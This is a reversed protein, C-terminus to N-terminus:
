DPLSYIVIRKAHRFKWQKNQGIDFYKGFHSLDSLLYERNIIISESPTGISLVSGYNLYYCAFLKQTEIRHYFYLTTTETNKFSFAFINQDDIEKWEWEKLFSTPIHFGICENEMSYFLIYCYSYQNDMVNQSLVFSYENNLEMDCVVKMKEELGIWEALITPISDNKVIREKMQNNQWNKNLKSSLDDRTKRAQKVRLKRQIENEESQKLIAKPIENKNNEITNNSSTLDNTTNTNKNSQNSDLTNPVDLTNSSSDTATNSRLGCINVITRIGKTSESFSRRKKIEVFPDDELEKPSFVYHEEIVRGEDLKSINRVIIVNKPSPKIKKVIKESNNQNSANPHSLEYLEKERKEKMKNLTKQNNELITSQQLELLNMKDVFVNMNKKWKQLYDLLVENERIHFELDEETKNMTKSFKEELKNIKDDFNTLKKQLQIVNKEILLQDEQM